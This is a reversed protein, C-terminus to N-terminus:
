SLPQSVALIHSMPQLYFQPVIRGHLIIFAKSRCIAIGIVERPSFFGENGTKDLIRHEMFLEYCLMSRASLRSEDVPGDEDRESGGVGRGNGKRDEHM